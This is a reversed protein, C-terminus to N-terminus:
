SMGRARIAAACDDLSLLADERSGSCALTTYGTSRDTLVLVFSIGEHELTPGIAAACARAMDGIHEPKM